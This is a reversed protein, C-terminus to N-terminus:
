QAGKPAARENFAFGHKELLRYFTARSVGVMQASKGASGGSYQLATLITNREAEVRAAELNLDLPQLDVRFNLDGPTILRGECMVIARRVRNLLERVNGPWDHGYMAALASKSFGRLRRPKEGSFRKLFVRALPEIDARRDRLPPTRVRLINLRYYLDSRFGGRKIAAELDVNTAAVVRADIRIEERGGVRRVAQGELFRLLLAQLEPHLDGIEDLFITGRHAAEFHGVKRHHAGTFAGREFGFLEAHILSPALSVCNIAVFPQDRRNSMEHIARAVLEKGTGSEGTILVPADVAAIKSLDGRLTQMVPTDGFLNAALDAARADEGTQGTLAAMGAVHGLTFLVRDRELPLTQYDVCHVSIFERIEQDGILARDVVAIWNFNRLHAVISLLKGFWAPEKTTLVLIGISCDNPLSIRSVPAIVDLREIKWGSDRLIGSLIADSDRALVCAVKNNPVPKV